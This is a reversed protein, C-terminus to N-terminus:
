ATCAVEWSYLYGYLKVNFDDNLHAWYKGSDPKYALNEAMWTQNGINVTKYTKGDRSDTFEGSNNDLLSDQTTVSHVTQAKVTSVFIYFYFFYTRMKNKINQLEIM